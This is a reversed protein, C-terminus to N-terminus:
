ILKDKKTQLPNFFFLKMGMQDTSLSSGEWQIDEYTKVVVSAWEVDLKSTETETEAEAEPVINM